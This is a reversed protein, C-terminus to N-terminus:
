SFNYSNIKSLPFALRISFTNENEFVEFTGKHKEMIAACNHLGIKASERKDPMKEKTNQMSLVLFGNELAYRIFVPKTLDGYKTLNSFLNHFLRYVLHINVELTSTIDNIERRIDAGQMELDFLNEELMQMILENGNVSEFVIKEEGGHLLFHEFLENTLEKLHNAKDLSIGIYKKVEEEERKGSKALELYAIVTTLPTKIDHSLSTILRRNAEYAMKEKEMKEKVSLRLVDIGRAVDTIEDNGRFTIPSDLNESLIRLEKQMTVLYKIKRRVGAIMILFFVFFSILLSIYGAYNEASFDYCFLVVEAKDKGLTLEYSKMKGFHERTETGGVEKDTAGYMADYIINGNVFIKPFVDEREFVWDDIKGINRVTIKEKAIYSQLEEAYKRELQEIREETNYYKALLYSSFLSLLFYALVSVGFALLSLMFLERNLYKKRMEKMSLRM